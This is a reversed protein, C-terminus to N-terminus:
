KNSGNLENLSSFNYIPAGDILLPEDGVGVVINLSYFDNGNSDTFSPAEALPYYGENPTYIESEEILLRELEELTSNEIGDM